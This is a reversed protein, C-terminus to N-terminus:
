QSSVKLRLRWILLPNRVDRIDPHLAAPEEQRRHHVQM